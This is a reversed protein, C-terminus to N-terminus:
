GRGSPQEFMPSHASREFTYFGKAPAHLRDSYAPALPYSVTYDYRGHLFYVPLGVATLTESLDTAIV